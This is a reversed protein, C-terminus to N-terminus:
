VAADSYCLTRGMAIGLQGGTLKLALATSAANTFAWCAARFLQAAQLCRITRAVVAAPAPAEGRATPPQMSTQQAPAPVPATAAPM